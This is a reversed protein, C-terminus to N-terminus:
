VIKNSVHKLLQVLESFGNITNKKIEIKSM